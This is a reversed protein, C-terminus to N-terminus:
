PQRDLPRRGLMACAPCFGVVATAALSAGSLGLVWAWTTGLGGQWAALAMLAAGLLRGWRELTPMNRKLHFM